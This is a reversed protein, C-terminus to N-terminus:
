KERVGSHCTHVGPNCISGRQLLAKTWPMHVEIIGHSRLDWIKISGRHIRIYYIQNNRNNIKRMAILNDTRVSSLFSFLFIIKEGWLVVTKPLFDMSWSPPVISWRKSLSTDVCMQLKKFPITKEGGKNIYAIMEKYWHISKSIYKISQTIIM